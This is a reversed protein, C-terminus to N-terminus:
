YVVERLYNPQHSENLSNNSRMIDEVIRSIRDISNLMEVFVFTAFVHKTKNSLYEIRKNRLRLIIEQIDSEEQIANISELNNSSLINSIQDLYKIMIKNITIISDTMGKTFKKDKELMEEALKVIENCQDSIRKLNHSNNMYYAVRENQDLSINLTSLGLLYEQIVMNLKSINKKSKYFAEIKTKDPYLLIMMSDEFLEEVSKSMKSLEIEVQGLAIAPNNLLREDISPELETENPQIPYLKEVLDVIQKLFPFIVLTNVVNFLTHAMAIQRAVNPIIEGNVNLSGSISVIFEYIPNVPLFYDLLLILPMAWLAGFIKIFLHLYATDKAANSTGIASILATVCTGINSGIVFPLCIQIAETGSTTAFVGSIALAQILGIVAGSSQLIATMIMAALFGLYPNKGYTLLINIFEPNDKLPAVASSMTNIGFFLIGIGLVISGWDRMKKSTSFRSMFAGIGIFVIAYYTVDFAIIQTMVTTGIDAGLIIGAAQYLSMLSANVFGIIMVTTASSSQTLITLIIGCIFAKIPTNTLVEILDKMKAGATIKLGESMLHMGYIFLGLGGFLEFLMLISM